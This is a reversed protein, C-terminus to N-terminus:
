PDSMMIQIDAPGPLEYYDIENSQYLNFYNAPSSLKGIIKTVPVKLTGTYKDNKSLVVQQDPTWETVIFPGSSVATEPKTNYLPGSSELAAKSLPWSYLLMAPLYPAAAETEVILEYDDAGVRVGITDPAAPTNGEGPNTVANWGKIVGQFYWTFDWAHEPDAGYQLTKVFDNATVPNGDSWNMGQRIKFTWTMGDASGSWSEAAAPQIQFNRDLRVLPESFLDAFPARQYVTEYFDIAKAQATDGVGIFVQSEPPAADAPTEQNPALVRVRAGAPAAGAEGRLMGAGLVGAAAAAAGGLVTRRPVRRQLVDDITPQELKESDNAM